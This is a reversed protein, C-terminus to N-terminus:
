WLRWPKKAPPNAASLVKSMTSVSTINKAFETGKKLLDATDALTKATKIANKRSETVEPDWEVEKHKTELFKEFSVSFDIYKQNTETRIKPLVWKDVKDGQIIDFIEDAVKPDSLNTSPKTEPHFFGFIDALGKQEGKIYSLKPIQLGGAIKQQESYFDRYAKKIADFDYYQGNIKKYQEPLKELPVLRMVSENARKYGSEKFEKLSIIELGFAGGKMKKYTNNKRM